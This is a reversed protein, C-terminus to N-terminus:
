FFCINGRSRKALCTWHEFLQTFFFLLTPASCCLASRNSNIFIWSSLFLLKFKAILFRFYIKVERWIKVLITLSNKGKKSLATTPICGLWNQGQEAWVPGEVVLLVKNTVPPEINVAGHHTVKRWCPVINQSYIKKLTYNCDLWCLWQWM